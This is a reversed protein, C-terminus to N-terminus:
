KSSLCSPYYQLVYFLPSISPLFGRVSFNVLAFLRVLDSWPPGHIGSQAFSKNSFLSFIMKPCYLLPFASKPDILWRSTSIFNSVIILEKTFDSHIKNGYIVSPSAGLFSTGRRWSTERWSIERRVTTSLPNRLYVPLSQIEWGISRNVMHFRVYVM